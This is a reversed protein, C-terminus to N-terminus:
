LWRPYPCIRFGDAGIVSGAHLICHNGVRCDHYITANAYIICNSGVKPAVVSLLMRSSARYQEGVEANDGVYAFPAIYVDKGIKATESVFALRTLEQANQSAKSMFISCNLWAKM